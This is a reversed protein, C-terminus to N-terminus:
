SVDATVFYASFSIYTLGMAIAISSLDEKSLIARAYLWGKSILGCLGVLATYYLTITSVLAMMIFRQQLHDQWPCQSVYIFQVFSMLAKFIPLVVLGKQLRTVSDFYSGFVFYAWLNVVIMYIVSVLLMYYM